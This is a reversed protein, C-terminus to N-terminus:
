ISCSAVILAAAQEANRHRAKELGLDALANSGYLATRNRSFMEKATMFTM